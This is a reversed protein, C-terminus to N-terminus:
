GEVEGMWWKEEVEKKLFEKVEKKVEDESEGVFVVMDDMYGYKGSEGVLCGNWLDKVDENVEVFGLVNDEDLIGVVKNEINIKMEKM